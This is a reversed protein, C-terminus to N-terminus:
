DAEELELITIQKSSFPTHWQHAARSLQTLVHSYGGDFKVPQAPSAKELWALSTRPVDCHEHGMHIWIDPYQKGNAGSSSDSLASLTHSISACLM